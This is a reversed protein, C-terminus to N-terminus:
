IVLLVLGVVFMPMAIFIPIFGIGWAWLSCLGFVGMIMSMVLLVAGVIKHTNTQQQQQQPPQPQYHYTM